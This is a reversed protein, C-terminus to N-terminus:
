RNVFTRYQFEYTSSNFYTKGDGSLDSVSSEFMSDVLYIERDEPDLDIFQRDKQHLLNYIRRNIIQLEKDDERSYSNITLTSMFGFDMGRTSDDEADLSGIIAYPFLSDNDADFERPEQVWLARLMSVAPDDSNMRDFLVPDDSIDGEALTRYIATRLKDLYM